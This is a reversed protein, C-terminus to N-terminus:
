VEGSVFTFFYTDSRQKKFYDRLSPKNLGM